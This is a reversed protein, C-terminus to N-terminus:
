QIQIKVGYTKTISFLLAELSPLDKIVFSFRIKERFWCPQAPKKFAFERRKGVNNSVFAIRNMIVMSGRTVWILFLCHYYINDIKMDSTGHANQKVWGLRKGERSESRGLGRGSPTRRGYKCDNTM